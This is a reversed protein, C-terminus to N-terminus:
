FGLKALLSPKGRLAGKAVGKLEKMFERLADYASDRKATEGIAGGQAEDQDSATDTFADLAAILPILAAAPYGRKSLKAAHPAAAAAAAYSARALTIFRGSDEPVDGTLSLALRDAQTPFSARAIERFRAYEDRAALLANGQKKTATAQRGMGAARGQFADLLSDVLAQGAAFEAADYGRAELLPRIEADTSATTVFVDADTAYAQIAKDQPSLKRPAPDNPPTPTATDPM